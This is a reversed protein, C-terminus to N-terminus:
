CSLKVPDAYESALKVKMQRDSLNSSFWKLAEGRIGLTKDLKELLITHDVTDFAAPLDLLCM